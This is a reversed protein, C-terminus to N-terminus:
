MELSCNTKQLLKGLAVGLHLCEDFEISKLNNNHAFLPYLTAMIAEDAVILPLECEEVSFEEISQNDSFSMCFSKINRRTNDGLYSIEIRKLQTNDGISKREINWNVSQAYGENVWSVGLSNIEPDNLKIRGLVEEENLWVTDYHDYQINYYEDISGDDDAM